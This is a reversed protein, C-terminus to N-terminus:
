FKSVPCLHISARESSSLRLKDSWIVSPSSVHCTNLQLPPFLSSNAPSSLQYIPLRIYFLPLLFFLSALLSFPSSPLLLHSISRELLALLRRAVNLMARCSKTHYCM